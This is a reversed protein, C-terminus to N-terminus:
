WRKVLNLSITASPAEVDIALMPADSLYGSLNATAVWDKRRSEKSISFNALLTDDLRTSNVVDGYRESKYQLSSNIRFFRPDVWNASLRIHHQAQLPIERGSSVTSDTIKSNTHAYSIAIGLKATARWDLEAKTRTLKAENLFYLSQGLRQRPLAASLEDIEQYETEVSVFLSNTLETDIRAILSDIVDSSFGLDRNPTLGVSGIPAITDIGTPLRNRQAALRIQGKPYRFSVGIRPDLSQTNTDIFNDFIPFDFSADKYTPFLGAELILHKNPQWRTQIHASYAESRSKFLYSTEDFQGISIVELATADDIDVIAAIGFSNFFNELTQTERELFGFEAGASFDFNGIAFLRRTQLNLLDTNSRTKIVPDGDDAFPLLTLGVQETIPVTGFPAYVLILEDPVSLTTDFLGRAAATQAAELGLGQVLSFDLGTVQTGLASANDFASDAISGTARLMWRDNWANTHTYGAELVLANAEQSDDLDPFADNGALQTDQSNVSARLLFGHKGNIQTGYRLSLQSTELRDNPLEGDLTNMSLAAAYSVPHKGPRYVGQAEASANFGITGNEGFTAGAGISQEHRNELFFQAFKLPYSVSLPALMLGQSISSQRANEDPFLNAFAFATDSNYQSAALSSYYEGQESLGLNQFAAGINIRGSQSSPLNVFGADLNRHHADWAKKAYDIASGAQYQDQAMISAILASVSSNPDLRVANAIIKQGVDHRGAHWHAEADLQAAGPRNPNAAIVRGTAISATEAESTLISYGALISQTEPHTPAIELLKELVGKTLDLRDMNIYLYAKAALAYPDTPDLSIAADIYDLAHQFRGAVTEYQGLGVLSNMAEPNLAVAEKFAAIADDANAGGAITLYIGYWHQVNDRDPALSLAKEISKKLLSDDGNLAAIQANLLLADVDNPSLTLAGEAYQHATEHRGAYAELYANLTLHHIDEGWNSEDAELFRSANQIEKNELAAGIRVLSILRALNRSKVKTDDISDLIKTAALHDRKGVAILANGLSKAASNQVNSLEAEARRFQGADLAEFASILSPSWNTEIASAIPLLRAWDAKPILAWSARDKHEVLLELQPAQGIRAYASRGAPVSINGLENFFDVEGDLVILRTDGNEAVDLYWDTGRIAATASPSKVTISQDPKSSRSWVSGLKLDFINSKKTDGTTSIQMRSNAHLRIQTRDVFALALGGYEGTQLTDGSILDQTALAKQWLGTEVPTFREDGKAEVIEALIAKPREEIMQAHAANSTVFFAAGAILRASLINTRDM